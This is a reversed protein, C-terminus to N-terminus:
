CAHGLRYIAYMCLSPRSKTHALPRYGWLRLLLISHYTWQSFGFSKSHLMVYTSGTDVGRWYGSPVVKEAPMSSMSHGIFGLSGLELWHGGYFPQMTYHSLSNDFFNNSCTMDMKSMRRMKFINTITATVWSNKNKIHDGRSLLCRIHLLHCIAIVWSYDFSSQSSHARLQQINQDANPHQVSWVSASITM